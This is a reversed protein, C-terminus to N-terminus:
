FDLVGITKYVSKDGTEEFKLINNVYIKLTIGDPTKDVEKRPTLKVLAHVMHTGELTEELTYPADVILTNMENKQHDLYEFEIQFSLPDSCTMEYKIKYVGDKEGNDDEDNSCGALIIFLSLILFIIKKMKSSQKYVPVFTACLIM